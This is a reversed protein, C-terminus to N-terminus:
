HDVLDFVLDAPVDSWLIIEWGCVPHHGAFRQDSLGVPPGCLFHTVGGRGGPSLLPPSSPRLAFPRSARRGERLPIRLREKQLGAGPGRIDAV